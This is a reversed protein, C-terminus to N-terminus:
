DGGPQPQRIPPLAITRAGDIILFGRADCVSCAAVRLNRGKYFIWGKGKCGPCTITQTLDAATITTM